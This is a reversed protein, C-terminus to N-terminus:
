SHSASANLPAPTAAAAPAVTASGDSFGGGLARILRLRGDIWRAQLDVMSRRQVILNTEANLETLRDSIGARYRQLALDHSREASALAAKQKTLQVDLSQLSTLQDAVDRLADLLTSNYTAVANDVLAASVRYMSRLRGADFLPLSIAIGIGPQRNGADFWNETGIISYGTFARLNVNPYFQARSADLGHLASEVRLRSATIDARHGLLNAPLSEPLALPTIAPLTPSLDNFADPGKGALAALAHRALGIQEDISALDRANEPLAGKASEVEVQTDLGAKFRREALTALEARQRSRQETVQRQALLQALKYYSRAVDTALMMRAAQHEAETAQLEGLAAKLTERNKGFFDLEWSGSLQLENITQTTGAYPPPYLGHESFRERTSSLSADAHIGLASEAVGTLGRARALRASAAQLSPSDALAQEILVTLTPDQLDQWWAEKPWDAYAVPAPNGQLHSAELTSIEPAIGSYSACGALVLCSAALATATRYPIKM